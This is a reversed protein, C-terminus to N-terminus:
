VIEEILGFKLLEEPTYYTETKMMEDLQERTLASHKLYINLYIENWRNNNKIAVNQEEVTKYTMDLSRMPHILSMAYKSCTRYNGVAAIMSAGSDAEGEIHTNVRIPVLSDGIKCAKGEQIEEIVQIIQLADTLSGGNSNIHLEIPCPECGTELCESAISLALEHLNIILTRATEPAIEENFYYHNRVLYNKPMDAGNILQSLDMTQTEEAKVEKGESM